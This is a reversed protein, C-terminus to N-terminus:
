FVEQQYSTMTPTVDALVTGAYFQGKDGLTHGGTVLRAGEAITAQVQQHVDAILKPTSLPPLQTASDMPDGRQLQAMHKAMCTVFADYHKELVIFRKSSNCRQGGNSIRCTMAQIAMAETNEHDLLVFADNGGLELVSPKLYKGAM